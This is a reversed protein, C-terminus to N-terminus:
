QGDNLIDQMASTYVNFENDSLASVHLFLRRSKRSMACATRTATLEAIFLLPLSRIDCKVRVMVHVRRPLASMRSLTEPEGSYWSLSWAHVCHEEGVHWVWCVERGWLFSRTQLLEVACESAIYAMFKVVAGDYKGTSM